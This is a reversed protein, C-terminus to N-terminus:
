FSTTSSLPEGVAKEPLAFELDMIVQSVVGFVAPDFQESMEDAMYTLTNKISTADRYCRNSSLADFVDVICIIRSSLSIEDGKLGDPYGSGDYHEHHHLIVKAVNGADPIDLKEVISAALVVHNKM